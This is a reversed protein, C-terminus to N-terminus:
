DRSYKDRLRDVSGGNRAVDSDVSARIEHNQIVREYDKVKKEAIADKRGSSRGGFWASVVAFILAIVGGAILEISM